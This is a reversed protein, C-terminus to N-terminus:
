VALMTIPTVAAIAWRIPPREPGTRKTMYPRQQQNEADTVAIVNVYKDYRYSTRFSLPNITALRRNNADYVYSTRHGLPNVDAKLNGSADYNFSNSHGLADTVSQLEFRDTYAFNTSQGLPDKLSSLNSDLTYSYRRVYLLPNKVHTIRGLADRTFSTRFGGLSHATAKGSADYVLTTQTGVPSVM